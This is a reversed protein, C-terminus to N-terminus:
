IPPRVITPRYADLCNPDNPLGILARQREIIELIASRFLIPTSILGALQASESQLKLQGEYGYTEWCKIREFLQRAGVSDGVLGAAIAAHYVPTGDRVAHEVLWRHMEPLSRFRRKIELVRQAALDAMQGILPKFQEANEFPIFDAARHGPYYTIGVDNLWLWKAAVNLYSGKSWGSPQFEIWILWFRQDSFWIRSQGKRRCGLPALAAKAAAAILKGHENVQAM